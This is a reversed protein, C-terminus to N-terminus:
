PPYPFASLWVFLALFLVSCGFSFEALCFGLPFKTGVLFFFFVEMEELPKWWCLESFKVSLHNPM